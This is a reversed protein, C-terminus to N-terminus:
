LLLRFIKLEKSGFSINNLKTKQKESAPPCLSTHPRPDRARIHSSEPPAGGRREGSWDGERREGSSQAARIVLPPQGPQHSDTFYTPCSWTLLAPLVKIQLTLSVSLIIM